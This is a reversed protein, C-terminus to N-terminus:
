GCGEFVADEGEVDGHPFFDFWAFDLDVSDVRGSGVWRWCGWGRDLEM